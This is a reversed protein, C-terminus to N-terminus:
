SGETCPDGMQGHVDHPMPSAIRRYTANAPYPNVAQLLPLVSQIYMNQLFILQIHSM